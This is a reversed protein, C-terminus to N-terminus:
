PAALFDEVALVTRAPNEEQPVHGLEAFVVLKSGAIEDRFRQGMQLPILRDQGGWLILTSLNLEPVRQALAGPQTQAFRQGLAQRNGARTTLDFYRDVLEPTVKAPDGYVNKVSSEILGRPLVDKMLTRLVPTRAIKFGLPVSASQYPYGGADVLVLRAIREPALVAAAWAVYGGLSNGALVCHKVGREDLVAGLVKVYNEITYDANPEPGTLGFGPMDYRIVRHHQSLAQAWGDWTHLSAGTGHLLVVPLPDDQPGEDRLHVSMGAIQVFQSPPQAWRATLEEVPRDPVRNVTIFAAGAVILLALLGGTIKLALKM